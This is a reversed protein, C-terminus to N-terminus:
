KIPIKVYKHIANCNNIYDNDYIDNNYKSEM